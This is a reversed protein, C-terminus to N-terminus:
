PLSRTASLSVRRHCSQLLSPSLPSPGELVRGWHDAEELWARVRLPHDAGLLVVVSSWAKLMPAKPLHELDLSYCLTITVSSGAFCSSIFTAMWRFSSPLLNTGEQARLSCAAQGAGQECGQSARLLTGHTKAEENTWSQWRMKSKHSNSYPNPHTMTFRSKNLRCAEALINTLKKESFSDPRKIGETQTENLGLHVSSDSCIFESKITVISDKPAPPPTVLLYEM